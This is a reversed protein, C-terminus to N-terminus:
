PQEEKVGMLRAQQETLIQSLCKPCRVGGPWWLVLFNRAPRLRATHRPLRYRCRHCTLYGAKGHCRPCDPHDCGMVEYHALREQGKETLVYGSSWRQLLGQRALHSLYSRATARSYEFHRAVERAQLGHNKHLLRLTQHKNTKM